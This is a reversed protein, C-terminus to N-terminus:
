YDSTGIVDFDINDLQNQPPQITVFITSKDIMSLDIIWNRIISFDINDNSNVYKGFIILRSFLRQNWYKVLQISFDNLKM